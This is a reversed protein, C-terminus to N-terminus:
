HGGCGGGWCCWGGLVDEAKVADVDEVAFVNVRDRTEGGELLTTCGVDEVLALTTVSHVLEKGLKSVENAFGGSFDSSCLLLLLLFLM